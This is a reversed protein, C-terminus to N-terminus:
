AIMIGKSYHRKESKILKWCCFAYVLFGMLSWVLFEIIPRELHGVGFVFSHSMLSIKAQILVFLIGGCILAFAFNKKKQIPLSKISM